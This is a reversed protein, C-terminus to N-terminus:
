QRCVLGRWQGSSLCSKPAPPRVSGPLVEGLEPACIFTRVDLDRRPVSAPRSATARTAVTPVPRTPEAEAASRVAVTCRAPPLTTALCEDAFGFSNLM